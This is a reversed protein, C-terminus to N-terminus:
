HATVQHSMEKQGYTELLQRLQGSTLGQPFRAYKNLREPEHSLREVREVDAFAIRKKYRFASSVVVFYDQCVDSVIGKWIEKRSKRMWVCLNMGQEIEEPQIQIQKPMRLKPPRHGGAEFLAWNFLTPISLLIPIVIPQSGSDEVSAATLGLVIAPVVELALLPTVWNRNEYDEIQVSRIDNRDIEVVRRALVLYLTSDTVALLEGRIRRYESLQISATDGKPDLLIHQPACAALSGLLTAAAFLYCAASM